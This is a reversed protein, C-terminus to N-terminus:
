FRDRGAIRAIVRLDPGMREASSFSLPVAQALDTLPGFSAMGQGKGIFKPALYVVCEDV